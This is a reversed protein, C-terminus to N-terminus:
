RKVLKIKKRKTDSAGCDPDYTIKAKVNAKGKKNLRKKAKGRPKVSLKLKGSQKAREHDGKVSGTKALKLKGPGAVKVTLKASGRKKNLKM